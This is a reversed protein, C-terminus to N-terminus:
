RPANIIFRYGDPTTGALYKLYTPSLRQRHEENYVRYLYSKKITDGSKDVIASKVVYGGMADEAGRDTSVGIIFYAKKTHNNLEVILLHIAQGNVELRPTVALCVKKVKTETGHSPLQNVGCFEQEIKDADPGRLLESFAQAKFAISFSLFVAIGLVGRLSGQVIPNQEM